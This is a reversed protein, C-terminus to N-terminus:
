NGLRPRIAIMAIVAGVFGLAAYAEALQILTFVNVLERAVIAPIAAGGYSVLYITSLLGAREEPSARSLLARIGGTSAAGQAPGVALTAALFPVIAGARLALVIGLLALIFVAMGGRMCAGPSWRGAIPAGLPNLVMVCSFGVAAILANGSGLQEAIILSGFAQYFGGMSWTAIIAAATALFLRRSGAPARLRPLLSVLAGPRRATTEPSLVVLVACIGLAAAIVQYALTRPAPGYEALAGSLFAGLSVGIMPASGIIAAALWRRRAPATDAVYAGLSSSAIGCALGQLIRGVMFSGFSHMGTLVLTGAAACALAALAVPRRGLHNSLRGLMLLSAAAAVFYGVSVLAFVDNGLGDAVRYINYLPIPAGGAAFVLVLACAAAAFAAETSLKTKKTQKPPDTV